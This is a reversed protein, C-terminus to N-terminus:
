CYIVTVKWWPKDGKFVASAVLELRLDSGVTVTLGIQNVAILMGNFACVDRYLWMRWEDPIITWIEDGCRLIALNGFNHITFLVFDKGNHWKNAVVV